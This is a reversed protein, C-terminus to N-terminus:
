GSASDLSDEARRVQSGLRVRSSRRRGGLRPALPARLSAVSEERYPELLRDLLGVPSRRPLGAEAWCRELDARQILASELRQQQTAVVDARMRETSHTYHERMASAVRAEDQVLHGMREDRMIDPIRDEAMWTQQAHRLWHTTLGQRIPLWVAVPTDVPLVKHSRGREVIRLPVFPAGKEAAPWPNVPVGPWGHSLDVLVPMAPRPDKGGLAPWWGDAAPRVHRRAANSRRLHGGGPGLLLYDGGTCWAPDGPERRRPKCTCHRAKMGALLDLLLPPLDVSRLSGDKPIGRYFKGDLEFLKERVDLAGEDNLYDPGLALAESWRVGAFAYLLERVFDDDQGSLIARREAYVLVEFPTPVDKSRQKAQAKEVRRLGRRGRAKEKAAPNHQIRHPVASGLCTSLTIRADKATRPSLGQSHVLGREWAAVEERAITALARGQFHPIAHYELHYRYNAMTSPELDLAGYWLNAWEEFLIQGARPDVYRNARVEAEKDQWYKDAAKKTLFGSMSDIKGTPDRWRSRWFNGRKESWGM